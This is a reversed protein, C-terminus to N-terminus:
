AAGILKFGAWYYPHPHKALVELKAHRLATSKQQGANLHRYFSVVLHRTVADNIEWLTAVVSRAGAALFARQVGEFEDGAWQRGHASKCCSLFALDVGGLPLKGIEGVGLVGDDTVNAALTLRSGLMDGDVYRGHCAIHLHTAGGLDSLLNKTANQRLYVKSVPFTQAVEIAEEEAYPLDMGPNALVFLKCVDPPPHSASLRPLLAANPLDVFEWREIARHGTPLPLAGFPLYSLLGSPVVYIRRITKLSEMIPLLLVQTLDTLTERLCYDNGSAPGQRLLSQFDAVMDEVQAREISPRVMTLGGERTLLFISLAHRGLHYELLAENPNLSQALESASRDPSLNQPNLGGRGKLKELFTRAKCKQSLEFSLEPHGLEYALYIALDYVALKDSMWEIRNGEERYEQRGSEIASLGKMCESLAADTRGMDRFIKSLQYHNWHRDAVAPAPAYLSVAKEAAQLAAQLIRAAVVPDTPKLFSALARQARSLERYAKGKSVASENSDETHQIKDFFAISKAFYEESLRLTQVTKPRARAYASGLARDFLAQYRHYTDAERTRFPLLELLARGKHASAICEEVNTSNDALGRLCKMRVYLCDAIEESSTLQCHELLELARRSSENSQTERGLMGAPLSLGHLAKGLRYADQRIEFLQCADTFYAYAKELDSQGALGKRVSHYLFWAVRYAMWGYDLGINTLPKSFAEARRALIDQEKPGIRM